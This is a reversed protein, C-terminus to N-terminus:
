LFARSIAFKFDDIRVPFHAKGLARKIFAFMMFEADQGYFVVEVPFRVLHSSLFIFATSVELLLNRRKKIFFIAYLFKKLLGPANEIAMIGVMGSVVSLVIFINSIYNVIIRVILIIIM